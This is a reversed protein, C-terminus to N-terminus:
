SYYEPPCNLYFKPNLKGTKPEEIRNMMDSLVRYSDAVIGGFEGSHLGTSILSVKLDYKEFGKLSSTLYFSNYNPVTSEM